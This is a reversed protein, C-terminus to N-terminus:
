TPIPDLPGEVFSRGLIKADGIILNVTEKDRTSGYARIVEYGGLTLNNHHLTFNLIGRLTARARTLRPQITSPPFHSLTQYVYQM